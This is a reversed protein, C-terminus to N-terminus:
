LTISGSHVLQYSYSGTDDHAYIGNGSPCVGNPQITAGVAFLGSCNKCWRWNPQGINETGYYVVYAFSGSGDHQRTGSYYPCWNHQQANGHFLGQCNKCWNWNPQYYTGAASYSLKYNYSTYLGAGAHPIPGGPQSEYFPCAGYNANSTYFLGSCNKCWGWDPQEPLLDASAAQAAQATGALSAVGLGAAVGLLLSRRPLARRRLDRAGPSEDGTM